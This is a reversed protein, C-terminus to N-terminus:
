WVKDSIRGIYRDNILPLLYLIKAVFISNCQHFCLLALLYILCLNYEITQTTFQILPILINLLILPILFICTLRGQYQCFDKLIHKHMLLVIWLFWRGLNFFVLSSVYLASFFLFFTTASEGLLTRLLFFLTSSPLAKPEPTFFSCSFV